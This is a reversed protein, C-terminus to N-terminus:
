ANMLYEQPAAQRIQSSSFSFSFEGCPGCPLLLLATPSSSWSIPEWYCAHSELIPLWDNTKKEKGPTQGVPEKKGEREELSPFPPCLGVPFSNLFLQDTVGRMGTLSTRSPRPYVKGKGGEEEDKKASSSPFPPDVEARVGWLFCVPPSNPQYREVIWRWCESTFFNTSATPIPPFSSTKELRESM